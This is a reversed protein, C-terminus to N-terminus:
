DNIYHVIVPKNGGKAKKMEEYDAWYHWYFMISPEDWIIKTKDPDKENEVIDYIDLMKRTDGYQNPKDDEEYNVYKAPNELVASFESWNKDDKMIWEKVTM